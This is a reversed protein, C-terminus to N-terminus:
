GAMRPGTRRKGGAPAAPQGEQAIMKALATWAAEASASPTGDQDIMHQIAEPADAARVCGSPAGAPFSVTNSFVVLGRIRVLPFRNRFAVLLPKLAQMPNALGRMAEGEGIRWVPQRTSGSVPGSLEPPAFAVIVISAPLRILHHIHIVGGRSGGIRVDNMMQLGMGELAVRINPHRAVESPRRRPRLLVMALLVLALLGAVALAAITVPDMVEGPYAQNGRRLKIM